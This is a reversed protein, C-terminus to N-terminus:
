DPSDTTAAGLRMEGPNKFPLTWHRLVIDPLELPQLPNLPHSLFEGGEGEGAITIAADAHGIACTGAGIGSRLEEYSEPQSGGLSWGFDGLWGLSGKLRM